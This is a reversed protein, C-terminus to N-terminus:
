YIMGSMVMLPRCSDDGLKNAEWMIINPHHKSTHHSIKRCMFTKILVADLFHQCNM